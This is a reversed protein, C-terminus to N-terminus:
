KGNQSRVSPKPIARVRAAILHLSDANALSGPEFAPAATPRLFLAESFDGEAALLIHIERTTRPEIKNLTPGGELLFRSIDVSVDGSRQNCNAARAVTPRKMRPKTKEGKPAHVPATKPAQNMPVCFAHRPNRHSTPMVRIKLTGHFQREDGSVPM